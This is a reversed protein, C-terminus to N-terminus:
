FRSFFWAFFAIGALAWFVTVVPSAERAQHKRRPLLMEVPPDGDHDEYEWRRSELEEVTPRPEATVMAVEENCTQCYDGCLLAEARSRRRHCTPCDAAPRCESLRITVGPRSVGGIFTTLPDSM